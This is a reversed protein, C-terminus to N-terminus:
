CSGAAVPAATRATLAAHNSRHHLSLPQPSPGGDQDGLDQCRDDQDATTVVITLTWPASGHPSPQRKGSDRNKAGAGKRVPDQHDADPGTPEAITMQAFRSSRGAMIAM